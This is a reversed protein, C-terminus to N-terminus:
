RAYKRDCWFFDALAYLAGMKLMPRKVFSLPIMLRGGDMMRVMVAVDFIDRCNLFFEQCPM